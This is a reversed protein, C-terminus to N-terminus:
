TLVQDRGSGHGHRPALHANRGVVGALVACLWPLRAPRPDWAEECRPGSNWAHTKPRRSRLRDASTVSTMTSISDQSISTSFATSLPSCSRGSSVWGRSRSSTRWRGWCPPGPPDLSEISQAVRHWSSGLGRLAEPYVDMVCPETMRSGRKLADSRYSAAQCPQPELRDSVEKLVSGSAGSRAVPGWCRSNLEDDYRRRIGPM